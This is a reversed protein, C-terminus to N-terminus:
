PGMRLRFYRVPDNTSAPYTWTFSSGAPNTTYLPTWVVQNTLNTAGEVVYILGASGNISIQGSGNTAVALQSFEPAAALAVVNFNSSAGALRAQNTAIM